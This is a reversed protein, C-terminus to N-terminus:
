SDYVSLQLCILPVSQGPINMNLGVVVPIEDGPRSQHVEGFNSVSKLSRFQNSKEARKM